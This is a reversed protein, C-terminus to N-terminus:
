HRLGINTRPQGVYIGVASIGDSGEGIKELHRFGGHFVSKDFQSKAFSGLSLNLLSHIDFSDIKESEFSKGIFGDEIEPVANSANHTGVAGSFAVDGVGEQPNQAFVVHAIKAGGVVGVYNEAAGVFAAWQPERFDGEGHVIGVSGKGKVVVLDGDSPADVAAAVRLVADVACLAAEFVDVLHKQVGTYAPFGVREDGLAFDVANEGGSRLLTTLEELFRRSDFFVAVAAFFGQFLQFFGM